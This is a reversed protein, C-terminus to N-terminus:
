ISSLPIKIFRDSTRLSLLVCTSRCASEIPRHIWGPKVKWASTAPTFLRAIWNL